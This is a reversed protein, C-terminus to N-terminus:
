RLEHRLLGGKAAVVIFRETGKSVVLPSSPSTRPFCEGDVKSWVGSTPRKFVGDSTTAVLTSRSSDYSLGNISLTSLGDNVSKWTAGGDKSELVGQSTSAYIVDTGRVMAIVKENPLSGVAIWEKAPSLRKFFGRGNTGVLVYNAAASVVISRVDIFVGGGTDWPTLGENM